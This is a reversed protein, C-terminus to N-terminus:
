TSGKDDALMEVPQVEKREDLLAMLEASFYRRGVQWEHHQESLVAGVLRIM